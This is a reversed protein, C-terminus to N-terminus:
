LTDLLLLAARPDDKGGTWIFTHTIIYFPYRIWSVKHINAWATLVVCNIMQPRIRILSERPFNAFDYVCVTIIVFLIHCWQLVLVVYRLSLLGNTQRRMGFLMRNGIYHVVKVTAM